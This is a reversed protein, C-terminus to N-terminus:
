LESRQLAGDRRHTAASDGEVGETGCMTLSCLESASAGGTPRQTHAAHRLTATHHGQGGEAGGGQGERSARVPRASRSLVELHTVQEGDQAGQRQDRQVDEAPGVRTLSQLLRVHRDPSPLAPLWDLLPLNLYALLSLCVLLCCLCLLVSLLPRLSDITVAASLAMCRSYKVVRRQRDATQLAPLLLAVDAKAAGCIAATRLLGLLPTHGRQTEEDSWHRRAGRAQNNCGTCSASGAQRSREAGHLRM